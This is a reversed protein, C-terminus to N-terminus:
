IPSWGPTSQKTHQSMSNSIWVLWNKRVKCMNQVCISNSSSTTFLIKTL